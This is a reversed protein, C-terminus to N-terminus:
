KAAPSSAAFARAGVTNRTPRPQYQGGDCLCREDLRIEQGYARRHRGRLRIRGGARDQRWIAAAVLVRPMCLGVYRSDPSDRLGKWAAYEPTDFIKGIDRPNALETWSDMGLLTPDAASFFPAHAAGAIKSLDRLLQVDTPLHSFEYDGILCGYPEGGLQGFEQEYLSKFLPSQDWRAGPYLRLNRYIENKSVNVFRIKLQSDTESNFVLYHLGRWSAEIKQFEQAHLVENMQATLKQDIRAIMEDITDLVDAKIVTSDALAQEVLTSLANEIEVAGRETRPKFSQKLVSAFEDVDRTEVLAASESQIADAM